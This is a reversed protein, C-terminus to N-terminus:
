LNSLFDVLRTSSNTLNLKKRLRIRAVNISNISQGTISAIDKSSMDLRLFAALKRENPTLHPNIKTLKEFFSQQVHLFRVEFQRLSAHRDKTKQLDRLVKKIMARSEDSGTDLHGLLKGAANDVVEQQRVQYLAEVALQKEKYELNASLNERELLLEDIKEDKVSKEQQSKRLMKNVDGLYVYLCGSAVLVTFLLLSLNRRRRQREKVASERSKNQYYRELELRTMEERAKAINIQKLLDQSLTMYKLTSDSPGVEQYLGYLASTSNYGLDIGNCDLSLAYSGQMFKIARPYDKQEHFLKGLNLMTASEGPVDKIKKSLALSEELIKYAEAYRGQMQFLIAKNNLLKTLNTAYEPFKRAMAIGKDLYGLAGTYDKQTRFIIGLNNYIPIVNPLLISDGQEKAYLELLRLAKLHYTRSADFDELFLRVAGLNNYAFALENKPGDEGILNLYRHFYRAAMELLGAHFCAKGANRVGERLEFPMNASEAKSIAAQAYDLSLKFDELLYIKSLELLVKVESSKSPQKKLIAHLSDLKGTHVAYIKGPLALLTLLLWFTITQRGNFAYEM